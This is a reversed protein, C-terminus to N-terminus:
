EEYPFYLDIDVNGEIGPVTGTESYQWMDIKYPYRLVTDYQALWFRYDKLEALYLMDFSQNTNFYIMPTYGANKVTECFAKACDTLTRPDMNATRADASIFEWDYVLPMEINWDKIIELLYNAEAAAEEPTIAQSFFYAGVRIGAASAGAYNAQAYDDEFLDGTEAGRAGARIMAFEVGAQKVKPWDIDRQWFSVDIGLVSPTALCSLYDGDMYFDSMGIPNSEPPPLTAETIVETVETWQTAETEQVSAAPRTLAVIVFIMVCLAVLGTVAIEWFLPKKILAKFDIEKINVPM